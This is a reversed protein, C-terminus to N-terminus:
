NGGGGQVNEQYTRKTRERPGDLWSNIGCWYLWRWLFIRRKPRDRGYTWAGALALRKVQLQLLTLFNGGVTGHKVLVCMASYCWWWVTFFITIIEIEVWACSNRGWRVTKGRPKTRFSPSLTWLNDHALPNSKTLSEADYSSVTVAISFRESQCCNRSINSIITAKNNCRLLTVIISSEM